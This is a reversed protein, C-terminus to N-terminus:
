WPIVEGYVPMVREPVLRDILPMRETVGSLFSLSTTAARARRGM